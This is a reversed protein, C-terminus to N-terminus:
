ARLLASWGAGNTPAGNDTTWGHASPVLITPVGHILQSMTSTPPALYLHNAPLRVGIAALGRKTVASAQAATQITIPRATGANIWLSVFTFRNLDGLRKLEQLAAHCHPCWWAFVLIPRQTPLRVLRGQANWIPTHLVQSVWALSSTPLQPAGTARVITVAPPKSAVLPLTTAPARHGINVAFAIGALLVMGTGIALLRHQIRM